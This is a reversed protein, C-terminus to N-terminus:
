EGPAADAEQRYKSFLEVLRYDAPWRNDVLELRWGLKEISGDGALKVAAVGVYEGGGVKVAPADGISYAQEASKRTHAQIILDAGVASALGATQEDPGHAILVVARGQQKAARAAEALDGAAPLGLQGRRQPPVFMLADSTAAALLTLGPRGSRQARWHWSQSARDAAPSTEVVAAVRVADLQALADAREAAPVQMENEALTVLDYGLMQYGRCLALNRVPNPEFYFFDGSDLLVVNNFAQRYAAVLGARRALGAAAPADPCDCIEMRGNTGGTILLVVDPEFGFGDVAPIDQDGFEGAVPQAREGRGRADDPQAPKDNRCGAAVAATLLVMALM